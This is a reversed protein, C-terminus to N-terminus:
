LGSLKLLVLAALIMINPSNGGLVPQITQSIDVSKKVKELAEKATLDLLDEAVLDIIEVNQLWPKQDISVYSCAGYTDKIPYELDLEIFDNVSDTTTLM